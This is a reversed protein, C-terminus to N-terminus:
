KLAEEETGIKFLALGFIDNRIYRLREFKSIGRQNIRQKVAEFDVKGTEFYSVLNNTCDGEEFGMGLDAISIPVYGFFRFIVEASKYLFFLCLTGYLFGLSWYTM